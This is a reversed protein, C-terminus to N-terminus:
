SWRRRLPWRSVRWAKAPKIQSACIRSFNSSTPLVSRIMTCTAAMATLTKATPPIMSSRNSIHSTEPGSDTPSLLSVVLGINKQCLPQSRLVTLLHKMLVSLPPSATVRRMGMIDATPTTEGTLDPPPTDTSEMMEPTSAERPAIKKGTRRVSPGAEDVFPDSLNTFVSDSRGWKSSPLSVGGFATAREGSYPTQTRESVSRFMATPTKSENGISKEVIRSSTKRVDSSTQDEYENSVRFNKEQGSVRRSGTSSSAKSTGVKQESSVVRERQKALSSSTARAYSPTRPSSAFPDDPLISMTRRRPVPPGLPAMLQRQIIHFSSDCRTRDLFLPLLTKSAPSPPQLASPHHRPHPPINEESCPTTILRSFFRQPRYETHTKDSPTSSRLHFTSTLTTYTHSREFGCTTPIRSRQITSPVGNRPLDSTSARLCRRTNVKFREVSASFAVRGNYSSKRCTYSEKSSAQSCSDVATDSSTEM